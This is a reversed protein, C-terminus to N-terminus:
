KLAMRADHPGREADIRTFDAVGAAPPSVPSLTAAHPLLSSDLDLYSRVRQNTPQHVNSAQNVALWERPVVSRHGDSWEIKVASGEVVAGFAIPHYTHEAASSFRRAITLLKSSM